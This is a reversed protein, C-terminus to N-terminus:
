TRTSCSPFFRARTGAVRARLGSVGAVTTGSALARGAAAQNVTGDALPDSFPVGMELIDVGADELALALDVTQDLSPDGAAIYAIFGKRGAARLRAFTLDIRNTPTLISM